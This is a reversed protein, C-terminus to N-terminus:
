SRRSRDGEIIVLVAEQVQPSLNRWRNLLKIEARDDVLYRPRSKAGPVVLPDVLLDALCVSLAVTLRHMWDLSLMSESRELRSVHQLSTGIAKALEELTMGREHRWERIRNSAPTENASM